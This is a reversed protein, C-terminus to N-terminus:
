INVGITGLTGIYEDLKQVDEDIVTNIGYILFSRYKDFLDKEKKSFEQVITSSFSLLVRDIFSQSWNYVNEDLITKDITYPIGEQMAIIAYSAQETSTTCEQINDSDCTRIFRNVVSM